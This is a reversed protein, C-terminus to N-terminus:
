LGIRLMTARIWYSDCVCIHVETVISGTGVTIGGSGLQFAAWGDQKDTAHVARPVHSCPVPTSHGPIITKANNRRVFEPKSAGTCDRQLPSHFAVDTRQRNSVLCIWQNRPVSRTAASNSCRPTLCTM